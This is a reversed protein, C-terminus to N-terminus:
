EVADRQRREIKDIAMEIEKRVWGSYKDRQSILFARDANDGCEGLGIACHGPLEPFVNRLIASAKSPDLLHGAAVALMERTRELSPDALRSELWESLGTPRAYAITNAITWKLTHHDTSDFAIALPTGDFPEGAVALPGVVAMRIDPNDTRRLWGLLVDVAAPPVSGSEGLGALSSAHVGRGALESLIRDQLELAPAIQRAHEERRKARQAVFDPDRELKKALQGATVKKHRGFM